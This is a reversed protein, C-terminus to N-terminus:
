SAISTHPFAPLVGTLTDDGAVTRGSRDKDRVGYPPDTLVLDVSESSLTALVENCDGHIIRNM